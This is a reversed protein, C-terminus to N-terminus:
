KLDGVQAGLDLQLFADHVGHVAHRQVDVLALREAHDALGAAALRHGRQRDHPQQGVAAADGAPRDPQGPPLDGVQPGLGHALDAAVLDGHDELVRQRRQVRRVGHALLDGLRHQRV